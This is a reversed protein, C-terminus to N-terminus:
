LNEAIFCLQIFTFLYLKIQMFINGFSSSTTVRQKNFNFDRVFMCILLNQTISNLTDLLPNQFIIQKIEIKKKIFYFDNARLNTQKYVFNSEFM